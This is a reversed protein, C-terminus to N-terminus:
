NGGIIIHLQCFYDLEPVCGDLKQLKNGNAQHVDYLLEIDLAYSDSKPL